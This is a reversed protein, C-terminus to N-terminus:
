PENGAPQRWIVREIYSRRVSKLNDGGDQSSVLRTIKLLPGLYAGGVTSYYEEEIKGLGWPTEEGPAPYFATRFIRDWISLKNGFNRDWHHKLYSHHIQHMHPSLFIRDLPGFSIQFPSHRLADLVIITGIMDASSRLLLLEAINLDTASRMISLPAMVMLTSVLNDFETGLPHMRKTTLPTMYTASHHVKHLEWLVPVFHQLYHSAFNAFDVFLFLIIALAFMLSLNHAPMNHFHLANNLANSINIAGFSEIIFYFPRTLREWYKSAIYFFADMRSSKSTLKDIPAVYQVIESWRLKITGRRLQLVVSLLAGTAFTLWTVAAMGLSGFVFM